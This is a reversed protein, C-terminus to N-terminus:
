EREFRAHLFAYAEEMLDDYATSAAELLAAYDEESLAHNVLTGDDERFLKSDIVERGEPPIEFSGVSGLDLIVEGSVLAAIGPLKVSVQVPVNRM